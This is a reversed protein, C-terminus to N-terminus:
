PYHDGLTRGGSFSTVNDEDAERSVGAAKYYNPDPFQKPVLANSAAPDLNDVGYENDLSASMIQFKKPEIWNPTSANDQYPRARGLTAIRSDSPDKPFAALTYMSTTGIVRGDFYVYPADSAAAPYYEDFGDGDDDRLQGDKFDYYSRVEAAAGSSNLPDRVDTTTQSLFYVLAEAPDLGSGGATWWSTVYAAHNPIRPFAIRFHAQVAALNTGDPPFDNNESKYAAVATELDKVEISIASVKSRWIANAVTPVLIAALIGIIVIVVLMEVLTFGRHKPSRSKRM